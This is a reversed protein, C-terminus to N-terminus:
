KVSSRAKRGFLMSMDYGLFRGSEQVNCKIGELKMKTASAEIMHSVDWLVIHGGPKLVRVMEHVAKKHDAFNHSIHHLAGSSFVVDFSESEFPMKRADAERFDIRNAVNEALANKWLLELNGGGGSSSWLDIGVVRGRKVKLAAGNLLLGSGCGVDLVSEDGRWPVSELMKRRVKLSYNWKWVAFTGALSAPIILLVGVGLGILYLVARSNQLQFISEFVLFVGFLALIYLGLPIRPLYSAWIETDHLHNFLNSRM